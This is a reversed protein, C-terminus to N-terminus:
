MPPKAGNEGISVSGAALSGDPKKQVVMFVPVGPKLAERAGMTIQVV